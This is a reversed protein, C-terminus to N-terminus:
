AFRPPDLAGSRVLDALRRWIPARRATRRWGACASGTARVRQYM